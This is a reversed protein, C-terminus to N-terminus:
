DIENCSCCRDCPILETSRADALARDTAEELTTGRAILSHRGDAFHFGDPAFAEAGVRGPQGDRAERTAFQVSANRSEDAEVIKRARGGSLCLAGCACRKGRGSMSWVRARVEAGCFPCDFWITKQNAVGSKDREVGRRKIRYTRTEERVQIM